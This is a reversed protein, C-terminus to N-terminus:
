DQPIYIGTVKMPQVEKTPAAGIPHGLKVADIMQLFYCTEQFNGIPQGSGLMDYLEGFEEGYAAVCQERLSPKKKFLNKLWNWMNKETKQM